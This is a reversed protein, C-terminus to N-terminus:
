TETKPTTSSLATPALPPRGVKGTIPDVHLRRGVVPHLDPLEEGTREAEALAEPDRKLSRHTTLEADDIM